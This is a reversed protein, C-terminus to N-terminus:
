FYLRGGVVARCIDTRGGSLAPYIDGTISTSPSLFGEAGVFIGGSPETGPFASAGVKVATWKDPSEFVRMGVKVLGSQDGGVSMYGIGADFVDWSYSLEPYAGHLGAAFGRSPAGKDAAKEITREIVRYEVPRADTMAPPQEAVEVRNVPHKRQVGSIGGAFAASACVCMALILVLAKRM